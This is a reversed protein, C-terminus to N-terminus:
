LAIKKILSQQNQPAHAKVLNDVTLENKVM